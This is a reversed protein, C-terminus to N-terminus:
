GTLSVPGPTARPLLSVATHVFFFTEGVRCQGVLAWDGPRQEAAHITLEGSWTGDADPRVGISAEFSPNAKPFYHVTMSAAPGRCLTGAVHFRIDDGVTAETPEVIITARPSGNLVTFAAGPYRTGPEDQDPHCTAEVQVEGPAATPPVVFSASWAGSSDPTARVPITVGNGSAPDVLGTFVHPGPGQNCATGSVTVSTFPGGSTPTVTLTGMAQGGVPTSLSTTAATLLILALLGRRASRGRGIEIAM